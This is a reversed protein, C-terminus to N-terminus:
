LKNNAKNLLEEAMDLQTQTIGDGGIIRALESMRGDRDLPTVQTYTKNERTQKSIAFHYDAQSAIQALHTICIVQHAKSVEHLKKGLKGAARGSVGTDIEDFILTDVGDKDSLVNKIALMIRSLEGGSAIKSLPKPTEGANASILFEIIDIGNENPACETRSVVFSVNPMDLFNLEEKVLRAFKEGTEQRSMALQSALTKVILTIKSEEIMLEELKEDSLQIQERENRCKECYDLMEEETAGYKRGLRHLYDLREEVQQASVPDYDMGDLVTRLKDQADELQYSIDYLQQANPTLESYFGAATDVRDASQKLQSLAGASEDGGSLLYYAENMCAIIKESNRYFERSKKLEDMEGVTLQASEIEDIQFTLFEIKRNKEETDTHMSAIRRKLENLRNYAQRYKELLEGNGALEDVYAFHTESNLLRQSDHQGHINILERGVAKLMGVTAPMGNIRCVNRGDAGITRSILLTGDDETEIGLEDAILSLKSKEVSFVATVNAKDCGTRVLEKSTREGLVANISDIIISKGAGTEGTLINLGSEFAIDASEIIAINEIRLNSLM